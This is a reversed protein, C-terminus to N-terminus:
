SEKKRCILKVGAVARIEVIDGVFFRDGDNESRASWILGGVKAAGTEHINDIEETVVATQGVLSDVNTKTDKTQNQLRKVLPKFLVLCLASLFIYVVIQIWLPVRCFALIMSVIGPPVFWIATIAMTSAESMVALVIMGIWIYPMIEM